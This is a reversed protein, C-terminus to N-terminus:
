HVMYNIFKNQTRFPGKLTHQFRAGSVQPMLIVNSETLNIRIKFTLIKTTHKKRKFRSKKIQIEPFSNVFHLSCFLFEFILHFLNHM